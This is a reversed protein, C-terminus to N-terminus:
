DTTYFKNKRHNEEAPLYQLNELIHLGSVFDGQLPIIHDVEYGEPREMYFNTIAKKDAWAPTRLKIAKKRQINLAYVKTINRERWQKASQKVKDKNKAKYDRADQLRRELHKARSRKNIEKAAEPNRARYERVKQRSLEIDAAYRARGQARVKERNAARWANSRALARKKDEATLAAQKEKYCVLCVGNLTYRIAVHGKKCANGTFYFVSNAEKAEKRSSPYM